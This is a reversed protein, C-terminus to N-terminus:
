FIGSISSRCTTAKLSRLSMDYAWNPGVQVQDNTGRMSGEVGSLGSVTAGEGHWIQEFFSTTDDYIIAPEHCSLHFDVNELNPCTM